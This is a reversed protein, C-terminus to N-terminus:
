ALWGGSPGLRGRWSSVWRKGGVIYMGVSPGM